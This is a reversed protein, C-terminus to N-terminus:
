QGWLAEAYGDSQFSTSAHAINFAITPDNLWYGFFVGPSPVAGVPKRQGFSQLAGEKPEWRVQFSTTPNNPSPSVTPYLLGSIVIRPDTDTPLPLSGPGNQDYWGIFTVVVRAWLTPSVASVSTQVLTLSPYARTRLLTQTTAFSPTVGGMYATGGPVHDAAATGLLGRDWQVNTLAMGAERLYGGTGAM